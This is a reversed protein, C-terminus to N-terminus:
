KHVSLYALLHRLVVRGSVTKACLLETVSKRLSVSGFGAYFPWKANKDGKPPSRPLYSTSWLSMPFRTTSKGNTIISSKERATVRTSSYSRIYVPFRWKLLLHTVYIWFKLYLPVDAVLWKHVYLYALSHRVVKGSFTKVCLFKTASKRRPFDLKRASTIINLVAWM